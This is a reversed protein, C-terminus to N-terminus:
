DATHVPAPDIDKQTKKIMTNKDCYYLEFTDIANTKQNTYGTYSFFRADEPCKLVPGGSKFNYNYRWALKLLDTSTSDNEPYVGNKTHYASLFNLIDSIMKDQSQTVTLDNPTGKDQELSAIKTKLDNIEKEQASKQKTAQSDMYWWMGGVMLLAIIIAVIIVMILKKNDDKSEPVEPQQPISPRNEEM